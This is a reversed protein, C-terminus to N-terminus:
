YFSYKNLERIVEVARRKNIINDIKWRNKKLSDAQNNNIEIWTVSSLNSAHAMFLLFM